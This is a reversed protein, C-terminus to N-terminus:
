VGYVLGVSNEIGWQPMSFAPDVTTRNSPARWASERRNVCLTNIFKNFHKIVPPFLVNDLNLYM